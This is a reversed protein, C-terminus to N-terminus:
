TLRRTHNRLAAIAAHAATIGDVRQEVDITDKLIKRAMSAAVEASYIPAETGRDINICWLHGYALAVAAELTKIREQLDDSM